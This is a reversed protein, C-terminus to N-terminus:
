DIGFLFVVSQQGSAGQAASVFAYETGSVLPASPVLKYVGESVKSFELTIDDKKVSKGKAGYAAFASTRNMEVERTNRVEKTPTLYFVTEPDTDVDVKLMFQANPKLRVPSNKGDINLFTSMGGYGMAKVKAKIEVSKKELKLLNGDAGVAMPSNKFDPVSQANVSSASLLLAVFLNGLFLNKM